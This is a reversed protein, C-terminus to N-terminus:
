NVYIYISIAIHHFNFIYIDDVDCELNCSQRHTLYKSSFIFTVGRILKIGVNTNVKFKFLFNYQPKKTKNNQAQQKPVFFVTYTSDNETLFGSTQANIYMSSYWLGCDSLTVKTMNIGGVHNYIDYPVNLQSVYIALSQTHHDHYWEDWTYNGKCVNKLSHLILYQRRQYYPARTNNEPMNVLM